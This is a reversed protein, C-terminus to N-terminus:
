RRASCHYAAGIDHALSGRSLGRRHLEGDSLRSLQDYIAAAALDYMRTEYWALTRAIFSRIATRTSPASLENAQDATVLFQHASMTLHGWSYFRGPHAPGGSYVNAELKACSATPCTERSKCARIRIKQGLIRTFSGRGLHDFHRSGGHGAGPRRSILPATSKSAASSAYRLSPPPASSRSHAEAM